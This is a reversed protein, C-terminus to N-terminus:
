FIESRDSFPLILELNLNNWGCRPDIIDGDTYWEGNEMFLFVNEEPFRSAEDRDAIIYIGPVVADKLIVKHRM